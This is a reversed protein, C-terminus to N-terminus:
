AQVASAVAAIAALMVVIGIFSVAIWYREKWVNWGALMTLLGAGLLIACATLTSAVSEFQQVISISSDYDRVAISLVVILGFIGWALGAVGILGLVLSPLMRYLFAPASTELGAKSPTYPHNDPMLEVLVM